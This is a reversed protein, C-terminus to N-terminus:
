TNRFSFLDKEWKRNYQIIKEDKIDYVMRLADHHSLIKNFVNKVAEVNFGNKSYLMVSQNFHNMTSVNEEFFWKQIPTLNVNGEVHGQDIKQNSYEVFKSIESITQYRLIDQIKVNINFKQLSALM